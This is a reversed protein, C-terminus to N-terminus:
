NSSFIAIERNYRVYRCVYILSQLFTYNEPYMKICVLVAVLCIWYLEMVMKKKDRRFRLTSNFLLYILGYFTIDLNLINLIKKNTKRQIYFFVLM